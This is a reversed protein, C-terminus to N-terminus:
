LKIDLKLVQGQAQPTSALMGLCWIRILYIAFGGKSHRDDIDSAWDTDSFASVLMSQSNIIKLGHELTFKVYILNRKAASWHHTTPAHL